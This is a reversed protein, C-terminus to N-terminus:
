RLASPAKNAVAHSGYTERIEDLSMQGRSSSKWDAPRYYWAKKKSAWFFGLGNKGLQESYPKTNGTLWVWAGCVEISVGEMTIVQNLIENLTEDYGVAGSELAGDFDKLTEYALNVAQMMELGAPNRDPHYKS